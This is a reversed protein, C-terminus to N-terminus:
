GHQAERERRREGVPCAESYHAGSGCSWCLDLVRAIEVCLACDPDYNHDDEGLLDGLHRLQEDAIACVHSPESLV